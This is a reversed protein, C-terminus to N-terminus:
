DQLRTFMDDGLVFTSRREGLGLELDPPARADIGHALQEVEADRSPQDVLELCAATGGLV